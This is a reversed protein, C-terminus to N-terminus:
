CIAEHHGAPAAPSLYLAAAGLNRMGYQSQAAIGGALSRVRGILTPPLSATTTSPGFPLCVIAFGKNLYVNLGRFEDSSLNLGTREVCTIELVM